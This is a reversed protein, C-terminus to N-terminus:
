SRRHDTIPARPGRRPARALGSLELLRIVRYRHGRWQELLELMRADDVREGILAWGVAAALHFDGVSVADADGLARQAVEAATWPGVGPVAQLRRSAEQPAMEVAEELRLAVRACSRVTRARGPDVGARHFDWSPVGLWGEADPVVRMGAPAPGPAPGGHHDLLWRWADTATRGVVRQELVAPVLAALVRGTRPIRLGPNSRLARALDQRGPEFLQPADSAGLLNPVGAIAERAGPGWGAVDIRTPGVQVLRLTAAGTPMASTLWTAGDRTRRFTPDTAGHALRQLTRVLDVPDSPCYSTSEDGHSEAHGPALAPPDAPAATM